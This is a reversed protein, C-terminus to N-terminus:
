ILDEVFKTNFRLFFQKHLFVKDMYSVLKKQDIDPNLIRYHM